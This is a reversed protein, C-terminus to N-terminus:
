QGFRKRAGRISGLQKLTMGGVLAVGGFIYLSKNQTGMGIFRVVGFAMLMAVLIPMIVLYQTHEPKAKQNLGLQENRIVKRALMPNRGALPQLEALRTRSIQLGLRDAEASMVSRIHHDGPLELEVEIMDLFIDRNPNVVAFAVVRVGNAMLDELWYRVGTTLRKAEPFILCTNPLCNLAIEEKLKDMTMPKEGVEDGNKDFKPETTPIDLQNAISEFFKKGSGKYTATAIAYDGNLEEALRQPFDNITGVEGM